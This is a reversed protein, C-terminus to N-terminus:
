ENHERRNNMRYVMELRVEKKDVDDKTYCTLDIGNIKFGNKMYFEIAKSNCSQTELIIERFGEDEAIEKAKKILFSGYGKERYKDLILLETVRLRNNWLERDVELYGLVQGNDTLSFASANEFYDQYLEATFGKHLEKGYAKKILKISFIENPDIIIDYYHETTYKFELTFGKYKKKDLATIQM